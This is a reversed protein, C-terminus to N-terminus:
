EDLFDDDTDNDEEVDPSSSSMGLLEKIKAWQSRIFLGAGLAAAVALQILISGSGPDLYIAPSYHM